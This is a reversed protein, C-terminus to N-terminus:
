IRRQVVPILITDWIETTKNTVAGIDRHPVFPSHRPVHSLDVYETTLFLKLHGIDIDQNERLFYCYPVGGGDGYGITVSSNPLLPPDVKAGIPPQYYSTISLDSSDFFFLSPYLAMDSNNIIKMGYMKDSQVQLDIINERNLNPGIPQIVPQL